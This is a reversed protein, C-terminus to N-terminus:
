LHSNSEELKADKMRKGDITLINWVCLFVFSSLLTICPPSLDIVWPFLVSHHKEVNRCRPGAVHAAHGVDGSIHPADTGLQRRGWRCGWSKGSGWKGAVGQCLGRAWGPLSWPSSVCPRHDGPERQFGALCSQPHPSLGAEVGAGAPSGMAPVAMGTTHTWPFPEPQILTAWHNLEPGWLGWSTIPNSLFCNCAIGEIELEKHHVTLQLFCM